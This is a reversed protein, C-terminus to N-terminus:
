IRNASRRLAEYQRRTLGLNFVSNATMRLKLGEQYRRKNANPNPKPRKADPADGLAYVARPYRKKAEHDFVYRAIHIRKPITKSPRNMRTVIASINMRDVGGLQQCIEARTMPGVEGLLRLINAVSDGYGQRRATM